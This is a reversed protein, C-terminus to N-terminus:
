SNRPRVGLEATLLWGATMLAQGSRAKRTGGCRRRWRTDESSPANEFAQLLGSTKRRFATAFQADRGDQLAM